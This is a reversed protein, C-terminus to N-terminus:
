TERRKGTIELINIKYVIPNGKTYSKSSFQNIFEINKKEKRHIIAKIGETFQHLKQKASSGELEEFTGHVLASEWNVMSQIQEVVVSVSSNKRMADIKHGEATYSIISKDEADFFYTIPIVYPKGDAIYALHGNYNDRLVRTSESVSIDMM